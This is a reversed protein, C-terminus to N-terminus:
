SEHSMESKSSWIEKGPGNSGPFQWGMCTVTNIVDCTLIATANQLQELFLKDVPTTFVEKRQNIFSPVTAGSQDPPGWSGHCIVNRISSAKRLNVLLHDFNEINAGGHDRVSEGYADILKGLPDTLTRELKLLWTKYVEEIEEEKYRKMGTFAFIARSLADELFGFTAVARGLAEWFAPDHLHTPFGVPLIDHNTTHGLSQQHEM